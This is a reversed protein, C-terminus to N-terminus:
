AERLRKVEARLIRIAAATAKAQRAMQEKIRRIEDDVGRARKAKRSSGPQRKFRTVM